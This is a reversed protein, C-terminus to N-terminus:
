PLEGLSRSLSQVERPNGSSSHLRALLRELDKVQKLQERISRYDSQRELLSAVADHRHTIAARNTLPRAIWQRLLRAGMATCTSDLVKLLTPGRHAPRPDRSELLE